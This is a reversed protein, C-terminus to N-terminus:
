EGNNEIIEFVRKISSYSTQVSTLSSSLKKIPTTLLKGYLIITLLTGLQIEGNMLLYIGCIYIIINRLNTLFTALPSMLGSHYRSSTYEKKIGFNITEFDNEINKQQNKFNILGDKEIFDRIIEMQNGMLDQQVEYSKKSNADYYYFCIAYIPISIFYILSLKWDTIWILVIVLIISLLQAFIESAHVTIFDTVNMLDNNIRSLIDGESKEITIKSNEVKDYIQRRINYTIKEGIFIMIRNSYMQLLYGVIYLIALLLINTVIVGYDVITNENSFLNVINGVVM